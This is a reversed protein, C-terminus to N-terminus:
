IKNKPQGTEHKFCNGFSYDTVIKGQKRSWSYNMVIRSYIRSYEHMIGTKYRSYENINM